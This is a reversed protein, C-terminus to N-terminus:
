LVFADDWRRDEVLADAIACAIRAVEPIFAQKSALYERLLPHMEYEGQARHATLFGGSVGEELILPGSQGFAATALGESIVPSSAFAVLAAQTGATLRAYLENALFAYLEAAVYQADVAGGAFAALGIVAPWGDARTVLEEMETGREALAAGAETEDMRMHVQTLEFAESYLLMRETVWRPRQRSAVLVRMGVRKLLSEVFSEADPSAALIQYDDFVLWQLRPWDHVESALLAALRRFDATPYAQIFAAVREAGFPAIPRAATALGLALAPLDSSEIGCEYYVHPKDAMWQRALTTKGYGAPATLLIVRATSEDLLKTLRPREIIHRQAAAVQNTTEEHM